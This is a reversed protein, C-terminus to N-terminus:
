RKSTVIVIALIVIVVRMSKGIVEASYYNHSNTFLAEKHSILSYRWIYTGEPQYKLFASPFGMGQDDMSYSVGGLGQGCM